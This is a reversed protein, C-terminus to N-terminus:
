CVTCEVQRGPTACVVEIRLDEVQVDRLRCAARQDGIETAHYSALVDVRTVQRDTPNHYGM